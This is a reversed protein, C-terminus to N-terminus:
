DKKNEVQTGKKKKKKLHHGPGGMNKSRGSIFLGYGRFSDVSTPGEEKQRPGRGGGSKGELGNQKKQQGKLQSSPQCHGCNSTLHKVPSHGGGGRGLGGWTAKRKGGLAGEAPQIPLAV